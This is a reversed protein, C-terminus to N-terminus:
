GAGMPAPQSAATMAADAMGLTWRHRWGAAPSPPRRWGPSPTSGTTSITGCLSAAITLPRNYGPGFGEALMDYAQGTTLLLPDNGADSFALRMSFLPVALM